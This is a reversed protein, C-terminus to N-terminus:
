VIQFAASLRYCPNREEPMVLKVPFHTCKGGHDWQQWKVPEEEGDRHLGHWLKGWWTTWWRASLVPPLERFLQNPYPAVRIRNFVPAYSANSPEPLLCYKTRATLVVLIHELGHLFSWGWGASGLWPWCAPVHGGETHPVRPGQLAQHPRWPAKMSCRCGLTGLVSPHAPIFCATPLVGLWAPSRLCLFSNGLLGPGPARTGGPCLSAGWPSSWLVWSLLVHWGLGWTWLVEQSNPKITSQKRHSIPILCSIQGMQFFYSTNFIVVIFLLLLCKPFM